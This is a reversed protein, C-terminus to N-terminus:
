KVEKLYKVMDDNLGVNLKSLKAMYLARLAAWPYYPYNRNDMGTIKAEKENLLVKVLLDNGGDKRYFVWQINSSLPIVQSSWWTEGVNTMDPAVKDAGSIGLLTAFPSITEAHAFRLDANVQGSKIFDDTTNIFNVLLPVAIRVQIGNVDSGPGKKLYDDLMDIRSLSILDSCGILNDFDVESPKVGAKEIETKLSPVITAFGFVDSVLKEAEDPKLTKMFAKNLWDDAIKNYMRVHNLRNQLQKMDAQWNGNEEFAVYAPSADYFRLDTDDNYEKIKPEEKFGAKLGILFADASQKTRVEKTIAVNLKPTSGFVQPYWKYMRQGIGQLEDKGEASISKVQGREVKDLALIMQKLKKGASTLGNVSDARMILRYGFSTNVEKTLHRAGHRGVHNIFVPQYGVPASKNKGSPAAYLTKTGLYNYNCKQAKGFFPISLAILLATTRLNKM